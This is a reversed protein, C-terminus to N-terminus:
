DSIRNLEKDLSSKSKREKIKQNGFKYSASFSIRRGDFFAYGDMVLGGYNSSYHYTTGTNFIDGASAQVMLKDDLFSKKLGADIRYHQEINVSGRWISPSVAYGSLEMKIDWPLKINNQMRFFLVQAKMDIIVGDIDGKYSEYNYNLFTSFEWWKSVKLPYTVSLGNIVAEDMNRPTLIAKNESVQLFVNAFYDHTISFTNSIVLKRKFSYTIQYNDIYNPRLFPNGKWASIESSRSEFPNLDQYNPRTIRRGYSLSLAHNKMDDFAISINPFLSTYNRPVIDDPSPNESTLEGLSSTNEVRLGTNMTFKDTPKWNFIAYAAAVKELYSFDNSQDTNYVRLEEEIDYFVLSNKTEIYSYKVGASLTTKGFSTNFDAKASFLDIGTTTNYQTESSRLLVSDLSYYWNPQDTANHNDYKGYSVDATFDSARNPKFSYQLNANYNSNGGDSNLGALLKEKPQVGKLDEIITNSETSNTRLNDQVRADLSIVQENNIKYDFGGSYNIGKRHSPQYSNLHYSYEEQLKVEEVQFLYNDDSVTLRSFANIKKGSYNLSTGLNSRALEGKSYSGNVSGNFGTNIDKKLIINIIGGTGEADYKSSPNSIIEISEINESQMGELMNSLDSGSMRSPHSNIYIQVGSKGQLTINNDMDVIVGPSKSILELANNGTSNVSASVNYVMKDPRIEILSKEGKVVVEDLNNMKTKLQINGMDYVESNHISILESVYTNFELNRVMVHYDNYAINKFEFSGDDSSLTGGIFVSDKNMLVVTSYLAPKNEPDFVYGKITGKNTQGCAHQHHFLFALIICISINKM